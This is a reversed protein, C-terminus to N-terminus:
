SSAALGANLRETHAQMLAIAAQLYRVILAAEAESLTDVLQATAQPLGSFAPSLLAQARARDPELVVKRRDTPDPVRRVLGKRELRDILGTMAGTSLGTLRGWAGASMAGHRLLLGLYKHDTGTLGATRAIAEHLLITADSYPWGLQALTQRASSGTTYDSM